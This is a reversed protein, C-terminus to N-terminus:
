TDRNLNSIPKRDRVRNLIAQRSSEFFRRPLMGYAFNESIGVIPSLDFGPWDFSNVEDFRLWQRGHDLKAGRAVAVPIEVCAAEDDPPTHTIPAVTVRVRGTDMQRAAVIIVCPRAKRGERQGSRSEMSFQPSHRPGSGPRASENLSLAM